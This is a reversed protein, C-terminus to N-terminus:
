VHARGIQRAFWDMLSSQPRDPIQLDFVPTSAMSSGHVFVVTGRHQSHRVSGVQDARQKRWLFLRVAVGDVRKHTWHERGVVGPVVAPGQAQAPGMAAGTTMGMGISAGGVQALFGRRTPATPHEPDTQQTM